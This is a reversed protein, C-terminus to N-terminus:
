DLRRRSFSTAFLILGGALAVGSVLPSIWFTERSTHSVEINGLDHWFESVPLPPLPELRPVPKLFDWEDRQAESPLPRPM